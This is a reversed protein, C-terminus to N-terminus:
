AGAAARDLFWWVEGVGRIRAAPVTGDGGRLREIIPQKEAGTVLFAIARSSELVPYTLTIREPPPKDGIVPLVWATREDLAASGPFLSATHGDPGLGLLTVDFLPRSPDLKTAGYFDKLQREYISAAEAHSVGVTPVAHVGTPPIPVHSLLADRVMGFNSEPDEPPVFREDGFFLHLRTWPVRDRYPPAALLGYLRKPTSGGSLNLAFPGTSAGMRETLWDAVRRALAGADAEVEIIPDRAM